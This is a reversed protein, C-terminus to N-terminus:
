KIVFRPNNSLQNKLRDFGKADFDADVTGLLQREEKAIIAFLKKPDKVHPNSVISLQMRWEQLKRLRAKKLLPEIDDLYVHNLIDPM